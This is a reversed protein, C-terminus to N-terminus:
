QRDGKVHFIGGVNDAWGRESRLLAKKKDAM